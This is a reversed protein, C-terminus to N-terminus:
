IRAHELQDKLIEYILEQRQEENLRGERLKELKDEGVKM